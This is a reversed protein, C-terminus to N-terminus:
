QLHHLIDQWVFAILVFSLSAIDVVGNLEDELVHTLHITEPHTQLVQWAVFIALLSLNLSVLQSDSNTLVDDSQTAEFSNGKVDISLDNKRSDKIDNDNAFVSKSLLVQHLTDDLCEWILIM